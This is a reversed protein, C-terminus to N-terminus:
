LIQIKHFEKSYRQMQEKFIRRYEDTAGCRDLFKDISGYAGEVMREFEVDAHDHEWKERTIVWVGEVNVYNDIDNTWCRRRNNTDIVVFDEGNDPFISIEFM